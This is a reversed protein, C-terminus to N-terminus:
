DEIVVRFGVNFVKHYPQYAKRFSSTSNKPRDRWSGGRVVRKGKDHLNNVSNVYPYPKYLSRTWEAVNGHMDYLGWANPKFSKVTVGILAGDNFRKDAPNFAEYKTPNKTVQIHGPATYPNTAFEETKQDSYNEFTSFDTDLNGYSFPQNSGARCAYEWQAETPLNLKLGSKKSLKKCFAISENWSLRIAPQQEENCDYCRVGFQYGIRDEEGSNHKPFIKRFQANTIESESIWYDKEIRVVNRPMEDIQGSNDGMVFSGKTIKQLTISVGGGLDVKKVTSFKKVVRPWNKLEVKEEKPWIIPKPELFVIPAKAESQDEYNLDINGYKKRLDSRIKEKRSGNRKDLRSSRDGHFPTNLDIWTIVKKMSEKDVKVNYHGKQLMQILDTADAHFEMPTLIAMPSEIGPGRVFPFLNAYSVTYQGARNGWMGNGSHSVKYDKIMTAGRLDFTLKNDTKRTGDHCGICYKDLVPQVDNEYSFGTLKKSWPKIETPTKGSAISNRVAPTSNKDEHCGICALVEGPMATFWSRFLQLAKGDKDLPQISLPTNSPVTFLASGDEYVPVEGLVRRMDWPGDIGLTGFLGGQDHNAFYYTFIRLKKVTGKPIGELGPGLYVDQVYVTSTEKELNVRDPIVPPRKRKRLPIPEFPVSDPFNTLLLMNDWVDVLYLGIKENPALQGTVLFYKDNIPYPHIFRPWSNKVLQDAVVAEVKKGYGPIRQIVGDAEQTGKATDLLILEGFRFVGHHGTAIGIIQSPSNPIVRSGFFATPWYSNSGYISRQNTGDPNMTFLLRNNSHVMDTYEWRQYLVKGDNMVTPDWNHDQDFCLQRTHGSIPDLLYNSAVQVVGNVCPVGVQPATSTFIIKGNPLYCSDYNHICGSEDKTLQQPAGSTLDKEFLQWSGHKSPMSFLIKEASYDLELDTILEGRKPKFVTEIKGTNKYDLTMIEDRNGLQRLGPNGTFNAVLGLYKRDRKIFLIQDFDLAPNRLLMERQSKILQEATNLSKQDFKSLRATLDSINVSSFQKKLAKADKYVSRYRRSLDNLARLLAEKSIYKLEQKALKFRSKLLEFEALKELENKNIGSPLPQGFTVWLQRQIIKATTKDLFWLNGLRNTLGSLMPFTKNIKSIETELKNQSKSSITFQAAGAKGATHGIGVKVEFSKFKHDLSFVILSDGHALFGNKLKVGGINLPKNDVGKNKRVTSWGTKQQTAKLDVLNVKEGTVTTLVGEGWISHCFNYDPVGKATLYLEKFDRVDVKLTEPLQGGKKISSIVVTEGLTAYKQQLQVMQKSWSVATQNATVLLPSVLTLLCSLVFKKM